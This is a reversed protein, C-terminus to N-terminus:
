LNIVVKDAFDLLNDQPHEPFYRKLLTKDIKSEDFTIPLNLFYQGALAVDIEEDTAIKFNSKEMVQVGFFALEVELM